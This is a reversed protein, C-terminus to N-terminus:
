YRTTTQIFEAPMSVNPGRSIMASKKNFRTKSNNYFMKPKNQM